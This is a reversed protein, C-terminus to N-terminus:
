WILDDPIAYASYPDDAGNDGPTEQNLVLVCAANRIRIKEAIEVPVIEYGADMKIIGAKGAILATRVSEAIYVKKIKNNDNFQYSVGNEDQPIRNLEVLQKIQAALAKQEEAQKRLQNLERDHEIQQQRAIEVELRIEDNIEIGQNRQLKTQKRKESKIQKAKAESALGSKLLQDQLSLTQPKKM